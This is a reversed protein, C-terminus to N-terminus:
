VIVEIAAGDAGGAWILGHTDVPLLGGALTMAPQASSSDVATAGVPVTATLVAVKKWYQSNTSGPGAYDGATTVGESVGLVVHTNFKFPHIQLTVRGAAVDDPHLRKHVSILAIAHVTEGAAAVKVKHNGTIKLKAGAKVYFGDDDVTQTPDLTAQLGHEGIEEVVPDTVSDYIIFSM